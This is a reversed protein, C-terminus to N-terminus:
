PNSPAPGLPKADRPVTFRFEEARVPGDVRLDSYTATTTFARTGLREAGPGEAAIEERSMAIRRPLRDARGIAYTTGRQPGQAPGPLSLRVEQCEVGAVRTTGRLSVDGDGPAADEGQLFGAVLDSAAVEMALRTEDSAGLSLTTMAQGLTEASLPGEDTLYARQRPLYVTTRGGDSVLLVGERGKLDVRVRNPKELTLTGQLTVSARGMGSSTVTVQATVSRAGKLARFAETLAAHGREDAPAMGASLSLLLALSASASFRIRM